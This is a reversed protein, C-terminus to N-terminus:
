VNYRNWLRTSATASKITREMTPMQSPDSPNAAPRCCINGNQLLEKSQVQRHREPWREPSSVTERIPACYNCRTNRCNKYHSLANKYKAYNPSECIECERQKCTTIHIWLSKLQVCSNNVQCRRGQKCSSAHSLLVINRQFDKPSISTFFPNDAISKEESAREGTSHKEIALKTAGAVVIDDQVKPRYVTLTISPINCCQPYLQKPSELLAPTKTVLATSPSSRKVPAGNYGRMAPANTDFKKSSAIATQEYHKTIAAEYLHKSNTSPTMTDHVHFRGIEEVRKRDVRLNGNDLSWFKIEVGSQLVPITRTKRGRLVPDPIEGEELSDDGDDNSKIHDGIVDISAAAKAFPVVDSSGSNEKKRSSIAASQLM